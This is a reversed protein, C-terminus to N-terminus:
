KKKGYSYKPTESQLGSGKIWHLVVKDKPKVKTVKPGVEIVVGSGEHGLLHPLFEDKGGVGEIEDIQKGCIGSYKIKVLVQGKRLKETFKLNIIKLKSNNKFLFSCRFNIKNM